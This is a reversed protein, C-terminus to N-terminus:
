SLLLHSLNISMSGIAASLKTVTPPVKESFKYFELDDKLKLEFQRLSSM